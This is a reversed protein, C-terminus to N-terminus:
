VYVELFINVESSFNMFFFMNVELTFNNFQLDKLAISFFQNLLDPLLLRLEATDYSDTLSEIEPLGLNSHSKFM